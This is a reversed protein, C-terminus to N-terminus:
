RIRVQGGVRLRDKVVLPIRLRGDHKAADGGVDFDVVVTPKGFAALRFAEELGVVVEPNRHEARPRPPTEHHVRRPYRRKGPQSPQCRRKWFPQM